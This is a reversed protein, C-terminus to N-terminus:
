ADPSAAPAEADHEDMVREIARVPEEFDPASWGLISYAASAADAMSRAVFRLFPGRVHLDNTKAHLRTTGEAVRTLFISAAQSGHVAEHAWEYAWFEDARDFRKAADRLPPSCLGARRPRPRAVESDRITRKTSERFWGVLLHDREGPEDALERLRMATEFLSRGLIAAEEPLEAKFLLLAAEYLRHSRMLMFPVAARFPHGEFQREDLLHLLREAHGVLDAWVAVPDRMAPDSPPLEVPRRPGCM